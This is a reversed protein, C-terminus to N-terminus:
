VQKELNRKIKEINTPMLMGSLEEDKSMDIGNKEMLMAIMRMLKTIEEETIIDVQLDVEQRLDDVKSARKQSILVFVSLIIAELSVITTLLGFPYPDFSPLAPIQNTNVALWLLFVAANILLFTVSGFTRTMWDAFRESLSRKADAAAKLSKIIRRSEMMRQSKKEIGM